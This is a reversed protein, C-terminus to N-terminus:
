CFMSCDGSITVDTDSVGDWVAPSVSEVSRAIAIAQALDGRIGLRVVINPQPSWVVAARGDQEAALAPYDGVLVLTRSEAGSMWSSTFLDPAGSVIELQGVVSDVRRWYLVRYAAGISWGEHVAQLGTQRTDVEWGPRDNARRELSSALELTQERTLSDSWVEVLGSQAILSLAVVDVTSAGFFSDNWVGIPGVPERSSAPIASRQGPYTTITLSGTADPAFWTQVYRLAQAPEEANEVRGVETVFPLDITPLLLPVSSLNPFLGQQPDPWTNMPDIANPGSRRTTTTPLEGEATVLTTLVPETISTPVASASQAESGTGDPGAAPVRAGSGQDTCGACVITTTLVVMVRLM